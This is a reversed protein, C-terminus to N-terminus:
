PGLERPDAVICPGARLRSNDFDRRVIRAPNGSVVARGPVSARVFSQPLLTAGDGIVIPGSLICGPGIWVERGIHPRGEARGVVDQGFTCHDHVVTGSGISKAGCILYGKSSLYVSSGVECEALIESRCAVVGFARGLAATARAAWWAADRDHRHRSCFFSLRHFTLLWLGRHCLATAASGARGDKKGGRELRAYIRTDAALQRLFPRMLGLVRSM